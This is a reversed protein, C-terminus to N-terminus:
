WESVGGACGTQLALREVVTTGDHVAGVVGTGTVKVDDGDLTNTGAEVTEGSTTNAVHDHGGDLLSLRLEPLLDHGSDNDALALGPSACVTDVEVELVVGTHYTRSASSARTQALSPYRTDPRQHNKLSPLVQCVPSDAQTFRFASALLM